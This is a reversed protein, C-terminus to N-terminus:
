IMLTTTKFMTLFQKTTENVILALDIRGFIFYDLSCPQIYPPPLYIPCAHWKCTKAISNMAKAIPNTRQCSFEDYSLPIVLWKKVLHIMKEM